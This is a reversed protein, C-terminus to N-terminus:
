DNKIDSKSEAFDAALRVVSLLTPNKTLAYCIMSVIDEGCGKMVSNLNDNEEGDYVIILAAAGNLVAEPTSIKKLIGDICKEITDKKEM